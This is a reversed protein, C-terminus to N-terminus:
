LPKIIQRKHQTEEVGAEIRPDSDRQLPLHQRGADEM